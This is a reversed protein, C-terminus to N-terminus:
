REPVNAKRSPGTNVLTSMPSSILRPLGFVWDASSSTISSRWTVASPTLRGTGRGNKTIAVSFGRSKWPVNGSGSTWSSRKAIRM